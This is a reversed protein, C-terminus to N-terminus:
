FTAPADVLGCPLVKYKYQGYQTRFATKPEDGKGIRILHYGDKLDLKTFVNAAAIPDRVEDMLPLPYKNLITLKNFNRYDICLRQSGDLNPVVLILAGHPPESDVIKGEALIRKTHQDPENLQHALMPYIPCMPPEAGEKLNTAQDFTRRAALM